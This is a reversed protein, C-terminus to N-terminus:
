WQNRHANQLTLSNFLCQEGLDKKSHVRLLSSSLSRQLDNDCCNQSAVPIPAPLICPSKVMFKKAWESNWISFRIWNKLWIRTQILLPVTKGEKGRYRLHSIQESQMYIGKVIKLLDPYYIIILIVKNTAASTLNSSLFRMSFGPAQSIYYVVWIEKRGYWIEYGWNQKTHPLFIYGM